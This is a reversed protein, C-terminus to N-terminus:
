PQCLNNIFTADYGKQNTVRSLIFCARTAGTGTLGASGVTRNLGVYWLQSNALGPDQTDPEEYPATEFGRPSTVVTGPFRKTLGQVLSDFDGAFQLQDEYITWWVRRCGSARTVDQELIVPDPASGLAPEERGWFFFDDAFLYSEADHQTTGSDGGDGNATPSDAFHSVYGTPDCVDIVADLRVFGDQLDITGLARQGTIAVNVFGLCNNAGTTLDV